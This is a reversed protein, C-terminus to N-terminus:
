PSPFVPVYTVLMQVPESSMERLKNQSISRSNGCQIQQMQISLGKINCYM